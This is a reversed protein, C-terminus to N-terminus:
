IRDGTRPGDPVDTVSVTSAGAPTDTAVTTCGVSTGVREVTVTDLDAGTGLTIRDGAALGATSALRVDMAGGATPACALTNVTPPNTTTPPLAGDRSAGAGPSGAGYIPHRGAARRTSTHVAPAGRRGTRGAAR